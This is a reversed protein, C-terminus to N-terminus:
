RPHPKQIPLPSVYGKEITYFESGHSFTGPESTWLSKLIGIYDETQRYREDHPLLEM